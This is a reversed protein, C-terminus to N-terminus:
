GACSVGVDISRPDFDSARVTKSHQSVVILQPRGAHPGHALETQVVRYTTRDSSLTATTQVITAMDGGGPFPGGQCGFFAVTSAGGGNTFVATRGSPFGEGGAGTIVYTRAARGPWLDLLLYSTSSPSQDTRLIMAMTGDNMPISGAAGCFPTTCQPLAVTDHSHGPGWSFNISWLAPVGISPTCRAPHVFVSDSSGNGDFDGSASSNLCANTLPSTSPSGSPAPVAVTPAPPSVVPRPATSPGGFAMILAYSGTVTGAVVIVALAVTGARRRVRRAVKKEVVREYAGAPDAPLVARDLRERIRIDTSDGGAFTDRGDAM